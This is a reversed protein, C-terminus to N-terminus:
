PSGCDRREQALGLGWLQSSRWAGSWVRGLPRPHPGRGEEARPGSQASGLAAGAAGRWREAGADLLRTFSGVPSGSGEAGAEVM